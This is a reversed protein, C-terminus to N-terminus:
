TPAPAAVERGRVQIVESTPATSPREVTWLTDGVIKWGTPWRNGRRWGLYLAAAFAAIGLAYAIPVGIILLFFLSGMLVFIGIAGGM